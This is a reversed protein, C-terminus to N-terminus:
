GRDLCELYRDEGLTECRVIEISAEWLAHGVTLMSERGSEDIAGPPREPPRGDISCDPPWIDDVAESIEHGRHAVRRLDDRNV